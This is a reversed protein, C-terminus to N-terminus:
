PINVRVTKVATYEGIPEPTVEAELSGSPLSVVARYKGGMPVVIWARGNEDTVSGVPAVPQGKKPHLVVPVGAQPKGAKRVVVLIEPRITRFSPLPQPRFSKAVVDTVPNQPAKPLSPDHWNVYRLDSSATMIRPKQGPGSLAPYELEVPDNGYGRPDGLPTAWQFIEYPM